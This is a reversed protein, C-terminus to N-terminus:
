GTRVAGELEDEIFAEVVEVFSGDAIFGLSPARQLSFRTPWGQVIETVFEDLEFSVRAAVAAGSVQKLTELMQAVTVTIGPLSLTRWQGMQSGDIQAGHVLNKVVTRPSALWLGLSDPVPCVYDNGQLPERIVASAFSSAAANALGPRVVVTPLRLCRGDVVGRRSLDNILYEAQMKQAGYSNQPMAISSDDLVDPMDGGYVAVSSAFILKAPTKITRMAELLYRTADVNVRMGLDFDKECEGSVAAALHFVHTVSNDVLSDAFGSASFDGYHTQIRDDQPFPVSPERLDAIRICDIERERGAGDRLRSQTLLADLLKRGLFGAGGTIVVTSM